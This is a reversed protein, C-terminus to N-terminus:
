VKAEADKVCAVKCIFIPVKRNTERVPHGFPHYIGDHCSRKMCLWQNAVLRNDKEVLGRVLGVGMMGLGVSM